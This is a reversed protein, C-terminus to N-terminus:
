TEASEAEDVRTTMSLLVRRLSEFQTWTADTMDDALAKEAAAVQAEIQPRAVGDLLAVAGKRVREAPADPRSFSAHAVVEARELGDVVATLGLNRLHRRVAGGDLDSNSAALNLIEQRVRDLSPEPLTILGLAEGVDDILWPHDLVVRLLAQGQRRRLEDVNLRTARGPDPAAYGYARQGDMAGPAGPGARGRGGMFRRGGDPNFLRWCQDRFYRRLHAKLRSDGVRAAQEELRAELGARLAPTDFRRGGTAMLFVQQELGIRGDLARRFAAAGGRRVLTDPDDGAPLALFALGREPGILPLAREVARGAARQGAADGDFCLVPEPSLRWLLALQDETLATGLPAVAGPFGAEHLAIVDMYGECVIIPDAARGAARARDLGYLGRGKHFLPTEPSNLYKPEGEGMVRGGFAVIRGAHDAIPFMVRDRFYDFPPRGDDPRRALGAEILMPMAFGDAILATQLADRRTPAYGLRFRRITEPALGRGALYDRASRGEPDALRAEYWVTAAEMLAHLDKRRRAQERDAPTQRPMEMGAEGALKEVAEPFSLQEARMVYGIADGHAGCGFCHFFGKDDNVTFSPSKENHFPCLGIHERGKRQLRVRRGILSSLPTRERLQDLFEAGISM